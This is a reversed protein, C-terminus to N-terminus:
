QRPPVITSDHIPRFVSRASFRQVLNGAHQPAPDCQRRTHQRHAQDDERRQGDESSVRGAM